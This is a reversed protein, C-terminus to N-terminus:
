EKKGFDKELDEKIELLIKYGARISNDLDSFTSCRNSEKEKIQEFAPKSQMSKKITAFYKEQELCSKKIEAYQDQSPKYKDFAGENFLYRYDKDKNM